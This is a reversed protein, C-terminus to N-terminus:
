AGPEAPLAYVAPLHRWHGAYDMGCGFVYRDPVTMGSSYDPQLTASRRPNNKIFAALTLARAAGAQECADAVRQLTEGEDYIDDVILVTRGAVTPPPHRLWHLEGGTVTDRYRSVHCYDILYDGQLRQMLQMLPFMGGNMVALLLCQHEGVVAQLKDALTDFGAQVTAADLIQESGAPLGAVPTISLPRNM